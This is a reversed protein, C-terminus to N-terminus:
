LFRINQAIKVIEERKIPENKGSTMIKYLYQDDHWILLLVDDKESIIGEMDNITIKEVEADETDIGRRGKITIEHFLIETSGDFFSVKTATKSVEKEKLKFGEPLYNFKINGVVVAEQENVFSLETHTTKEDFVFNMFKTRFSEVGYITVGSTVCLALLICAANKSYKIMKKKLILRKEKKFIRAMKEDLTSDEPFDASKNLEKLNQSEEAMAISFATKLIQDFEKDENSKM